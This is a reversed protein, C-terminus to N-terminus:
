RRQLITIANKVRTADIVNMQRPNTTELEIGEKELYDLADVFLETDSDRTRIIDGRLAASRLRPNASGELMAFIEQRTTQLMNDVMDRRRSMTESLFRSNQYLEKSRAELLPAMYYNVFWEHERDEATRYYNGQWLPKNAMGLVKDTYTKAGMEDSGLVNATGFNERTKDVRGYGSNPDTERSEVRQDTYTPTDGAIIAGFIRDTYRGFQAKFNQSFGELHRKSSADDNDMVFGVLENPFQAPRTFGSVIGGMLEGLSSRFEESGAGQAMQVIGATLLAIDSGLDGLFRTIEGPGAQTMFEALQEEPIDEGNYVRAILNGAEMIFSLPYLGQTSHRTGDSDVYVQAPDGNAINNELQYKAAMGLATLGIVSKNMLNSLSEQGAKGQGFKYGKRTAWKAGESMVAIPGRLSWTYTNGIVNNAFKGFPFLFGAGPMNSVREVLQAMDSIVKPQPVAKNSPTYDASYVSKQTQHIARGFMDSDVKDFFKGSMILDEFGEGLETRTILDLNAIFNQSKWYSDQARVFSIAQGFDTLKESGEVVTKWLPNIDQFNYRKLVEQTTRPDDMGNEVIDKLVRMQDQNLNHLTEFVDATANVDLFRRLRSSIAGRYARATKLDGRALAMSGDMVHSLIDAGTYATTGVVNRATTAISSVLNRKFLNQIYRTTDAVSPKKLDKRAKEGALIAKNKARTEFISKRSMIELITGGQNMTSALADAFADTTMDKGPFFGKLFKDFDVKAEPELDKLFSSVIQTKTQQDTPRKIILGSNAIEDILGPTGTDPNGNLILDLTKERFIIEGRGTKGADVMKDWDHLSLTKKLNKVVSKSVKKREKPRMLGKILDGTAYKDSQRPIFDFVRDLAGGVAGLGTALAINEINYDIDDNAQIRSRQYLTEMGGGVVGEAGAMAATKKAGNSILPKKTLRAITDRRVKREVAKSAGRKLAAKGAQRAAMRVAQASATTGAKGILGGAILGAYSSPAWIASLAYDSVADAMEGYDGDLFVNGLADYREYAKSFIEKEQPSAGSLNSIEGILKLENVELGRQRDMFDEVLYEPSGRSGKEGYEVGNTYVMYNRIDSIALPDNLYDSVSPAPAEDETKSAQPQVREIASLINGDKKPVPVSEIAKLIDSM